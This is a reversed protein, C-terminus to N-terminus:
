QSQQEHELFHQPHAKQVDQLMHAPRKITKKHYGYNNTKCRLIVIDIKSFYFKIYAM